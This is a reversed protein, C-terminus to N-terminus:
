ANLYLWLTNRSTIGMEEQILLRAEHKSLTPLLTRYRQYAYLYRWSKNTPLHHKALTNRWKIRIFDYGEFQILTDHGHILNTLRSLIMHQTQNRIPIFRDQSNFAIERTIWLQHEQAHVGPWLHIAESFTLGFETQLAMILSSTPEIFMKWITPEIKIKKKSKYERTLQLSKNDIEPIQCDLACLFKRIITMYRMITAPRLKQKQWHKILGEINQTTLAQWSRPTSGIRFLDDMTKHIVYNQHKRDTFKGQRNCELYLTAAQRLSRKNMIEGPFTLTIGNTHLRDSSLIDMFLKGVQRGAM